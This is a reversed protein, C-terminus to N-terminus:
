SQGGEVHEVTELLVIKTVPRELTTNKTTVKVSRVLNDKKNRQVEVIRDLPWTNRSLGEDAVLVIDGVSHNRQVKSWRQREQLCPLYEKTWRKWFIDALYQVQRWKRRSYLDSSAFVGPPCEPGKRLLLLHNPTLAELDKPDDSVKTIPRGNVIAEVECFLTVLREDDLVQEKM